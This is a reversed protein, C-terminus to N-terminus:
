SPSDCNIQLVCKIGVTDHHQPLGLYSDAHLGSLKNSHIFVHKIHTTEDPNFIVVAAGFSIVLNYM